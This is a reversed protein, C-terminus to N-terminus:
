TRVQGEKKKSKAQRSCKRTIEIATRQYESWCSWFKSLKLAEFDAWRRKQVIYSETIPPCSPESIKFYGTLYSRLPIVVDPQSTFIIINHSIDSVQGSRKGRAGVGM